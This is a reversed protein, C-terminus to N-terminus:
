PQKSSLIVMGAPPLEVGITVRGDGDEEIDVWQDTPLQELQEDSWDGRYLVWARGSKLFADRDVTVRGSRPELGHANFVCVVAAEDSLRSWALVGATHYPEFVEEGAQKVERVYLEGRRLARGIGDSRRRCASLAAIRRFVPHGRDFFHCGTTQFAGFESGFMSERVYRDAYPIRGDEGRPENEEDHTSESGDFGQETGYYVCPIGPTMLQVGIAHALQRDADETDNGWAFRHKGDRWVMDHDDLISVHHIGAGRLPGMEDLGGFHSFFAEPSGTGKAMESLRRPASEIDLVADLNAGSPDVYARVIAPSGTVEGLLLFNKKGLDCAFARIGQCFKASVTHPVHKVTDIRFGDCDTKAIWYQYCRLLADVVEPIDLNLNKLDGFDGRRFETDPDLERGPSDWNQISGARTYWDPNQFEVPWVGDEIDKIEAVPKGDKGRWALFPYPPEDRYPMTSYAKGENDYYWNDGTHNYIVDLMVYMGREHAAETLAQVDELTGFREDIALFNQIGYGHYTAIDFRQKWIPGIWLTTMGLAKLYDLKTTIGRIRGGEFSRGADRWRKIHPHRFAEPNSRDFMPRHHEDGDSFRDPLLFYM